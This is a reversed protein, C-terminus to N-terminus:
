PLGVRRVLEEFRPDSRLNDFDPDVKLDLLKPSREVYARDLWLFAKDKNDLLSYLGAIVFPATHGEKTNELNADLAAQWFTRMAPRFGLKAYTLGIDSALDAGGSTTVYSQLAEIAEKEMGNHIYAFALGQLAAPRSPDMAVSTQFQTIADPYRHCYYYTWGLSTNTAVSLPDLDRARKDTAIAENARGVTRLYIAYGRYAQVWSPTLQMARKFQREAEPFNRDYYLALWGLMSYAPGLEPDIALVKDVLAKVKPSAELPSLTEEDAMQLYYHALCVYALAFAPDSDIAQECYRRGTEYGEPTRKYIYYQGRLFLQYAESNETAATNLRHTQDRSLHLRLQEAVERSIDSQITAVESVKRTYQAGWLRTNDQTNILEASVTLNDGRSIVNGTMVAGVGLQHGIAHPDIDKGKYHFASTHSIVRVEPLQSVSDILSDTIGDGLYETDASTSRFPL